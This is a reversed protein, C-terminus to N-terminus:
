MLCSRVPSVPRAELKTILASVYKRQLEAGCRGDWNDRALDLPYADKVYAPNGVRRM